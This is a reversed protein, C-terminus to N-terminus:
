RPHFLPLTVCTYRPAVLLPRQLSRVCGRSWLNTESQHPRVRQEAAPTAETASTCPAACGVNTCQPWITKLDTRATAGQGACPGSNDAYPLRVTLTVPPDPVGHQWGDFVSFALLPGCMGSWLPVACPGRPEPRVNITTTSTNSVLSIPYLCYLLIYM